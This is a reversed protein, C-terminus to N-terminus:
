GNGNQSVVNFPLFLEFESGEGFRSQVSISGNHAEIMLKVYSLGLGSGKVDHLNGTPVRYYKDFIHKQEELRLGIGNDRVSVTVGNEKNGTEVSIFPADRSYKSANDLLNHIVNSLHIPDAKIVSPDATFRCRIEGRRAEVQLAINDVAKRISEHIDVTDLNLEYDGEELEAMQLIKDVQNQMRQNEDNIIQAYRALKKRDKQTRSNRLSESALSITSIPTKFEHTMNNIFDNLLKAFHQQKFVMRLTYVFSSIVITVLILSAGLLGATQKLVFITEDPFYLVLDNRSQFPDTDFLRARFSSNALDSEYGPPRTMKLSNETASHIGYAVPMTIDNAKMTARIVSDLEAQNIRAEIPKEEISSLNELVRSVIMRKKGEGLNGPLMGKQRGAMLIINVAGSDSTFNFALNDNKFRTTDIDLEHKGAGRRENLVVGLEDGKLDLVRLRVHQPYPLTFYIKRDEIRFDANSQVWKSMGTTDLNGAKTENRNTRTGLSDVRTSTDTKAIFDFTSYIAERRELKEVIGAMVRNVNQHFAQRKLEVANKLLVVQLWVLGVLAFTVLAILLFISRKKRAM